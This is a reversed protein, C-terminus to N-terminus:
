RAQRSLGLVLTGDDVLCARLAKGSTALLFTLLVHRSDADMDVHDAFLDAM